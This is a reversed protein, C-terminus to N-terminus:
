AHRVDMGFHVDWFALPGLIADESQSRHDGTCGKIIESQQNWLEFHKKNKNKWHFNTYKLTTGRTVKKALRSMADTGLQLFTFKKITEQDNQDSPHLIHWRKQWESRIISVDSKPPSSSKSNYGFKTLRNVLVIKDDHTWWSEDCFLSM